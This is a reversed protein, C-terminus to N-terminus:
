IKGMIPGKALISQGSTAIGYKSSIFGFEAIM